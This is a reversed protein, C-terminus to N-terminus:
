PAGQSVTATNGNGVQSITSTFGAGSQTVTASNLDGLQSVLSTVDAASQTVDAFNDSGDQLIDSVANLAFATQTANATNDSGTQDINILGDIGDQLITADNFGFLENTVGDDAVNQTVNSTNGDGGIEIDIENGLFGGQLVNVSGNAGDALLDTSGGFGIQTILITNGSSGATSDVDVSNVVPALGDSLQDIDVLNLSGAVDVDAISADNQFIDVTNGDGTVVADALNGTDIVDNEQVIDLDNGTGSIDVLASNNEFSQTIDVTNDTGSGTVTADNGDGLSSGTTDQSITVDVNVADTLGVSADNAENGPGNMQDITIDSDSSNVLTVLADNNELGQNITVSNTDGGTISVDAENISGAGGFNGTSDQSIDVDAGDTDTLSVFADNPENGAANTQLIDITSDAGGSVDVDALNDEFQQDISVDNNDGTVDVQADNVGGPGFFGPDNGSSDQTVDVDINTGDVNIAATNPENDDMNMQSVSIINDSGAVDVDAFNSDIEQDILVQNNDGRAFVDAENPIVGTDGSSDQNIDIDLLNGDADVNALNGTNGAGNTQTIDIDNNTGALLVGADNANLSQTITVTNSDGGSNSLTATNDEGDQDIAFTSNSGGLGTGTFSNRDGDQDVDLTNGDAGGLLTIDSVNMEGTQNVSLTNSDGDDVVMSTNWMGTQNVTTDLTNGRDDVVATNSSGDQVVTASSGEGTQDVDALNDAGEQSVLALSGDGMQNVDADNNSGTQEIAATADDGIQTIAASSEDLANTQYIAAISGTGDQEVSATADFISGDGDGSGAMDFLQNIEASNSDGPLVTTNQDVTASANAGSGDSTQNIISQNSPVAFVGPALGTDTQTVEAFNGETPGDSSSQEILSVVETGDQDVDATNGDGTQSIDSVAPPILGAPLPPVTPVTQAMAAGAGFVVFSASALLLKRM